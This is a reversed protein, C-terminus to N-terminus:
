AGLAREAALLCRPVLARHAGGAVQWTLRAPPRHFVLMTTWTLGVDDIDFVMRGSMRGGGAALVVREPTEFAVRWGAVTCATGVRAVRLGLVGRWVLTAFLGGRAEAGRLAAAAWTRADERPRAQLRFADAYDADFADLEDLEDLLAPDPEIRTVAPATTTM